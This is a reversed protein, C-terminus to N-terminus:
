RKTILRVARDYFFYDWAWNILVLLKNRFGILQILHVVLWVVWAAFGTFSLGRIHAVAASRGITALSGPDRYRFPIPARGAIARRVNRAATDAMQIAVPAMMPHAPGEHEVWAADGVVYAEPRGPVQLTPEVVIRGQPGTALGFTAALRSARAGAAWILTRAP